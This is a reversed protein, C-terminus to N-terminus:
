AEALQLSYILTLQGKSPHSFEEEEEYDGNLIMKRRSEMLGDQDDDYAEPEEMLVLDEEEECGFNVVRVAGNGQNTGHIMM